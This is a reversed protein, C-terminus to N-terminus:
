ITFSKFISGELFSKQEDKLVAFLPDSFCEFTEFIEKLRRFSIEAHNIKMDAIKIKDTYELRPVSCEYSHNLVRRFDDFFLNRNQMKDLVIQIEIEDIFINSAILNAFFKYIETLRYLTSMIELLQGRKELGYHLDEFCAFKHIFTGDKFMRWVEIHYRFETVSQIYDQGYSLGGFADSKNHYHPYDWGRLYVKSKDIIKECDKLSVIENSQLPRLVVLWNGVENIKVKTDSFENLIRSGRKLHKIRNM